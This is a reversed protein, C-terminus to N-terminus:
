TRHHLYKTVLQPLTPLELWPKNALLELEIPGIKTRILQLVEYGVREMMRRVQRNRGEHITIDVWAGRPTVEGLEVRAPHTFGEKLRVGKELHLLAAESPQRDLLVHYTKEILHSPHTLTNTLEGDNTLIMLGQSDLDLRGVPYLRESMTPLLDLVTPRDLDDHSTSVYGAPKNVLFYRHKEPAQVTRGALTVSDIGPVVRQGLHAPRGNVKVKGALIEQEAQRRSM